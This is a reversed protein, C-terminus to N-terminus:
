SKTLSYLLCNGIGVMSYQGLEVVELPLVNCLHLLQQSKEEFLDSVDENVSPKWVDLSSDLDNTEQKTQKAPSVDDVEVKVKRKRSKSAQKVHKKNDVTETM